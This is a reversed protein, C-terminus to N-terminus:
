GAQSIRNGRLHFCCIGGFSQYKHVLNYPIVNWSVMINITVEILVESEGSVSRLPISFCLTNCCLTFSLFVNQKNQVPATRISPRASLRTYPTLSRRIGEDSKVGYLFTPSTAAQDLRGSTVLIGHQLLIRQVSNQNDM